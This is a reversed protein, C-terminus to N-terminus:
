NWGKNWGDGKINGLEPRLELGEKHRDTIGERIRYGDRIGDRIGM